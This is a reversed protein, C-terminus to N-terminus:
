HHRRLRATALLLRLEGLATRQLRSVHMLSIGLREAIETQTLDDYFKLWIVTQERQDLCAIGNAVDISDALGEM